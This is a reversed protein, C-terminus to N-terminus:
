QRAHSQTPRALADIGANGSYGKANRASIATATDIPTSTRATSHHRLRLLYRARELGAGGRQSRGCWGAAVRKTAHPTPAESQAPRASTSSIMASARASNPPQQRAPTPVETVAREFTVRREGIGAQTRNGGGVVFRRSEGHKNSRPAVPRPIPRAFKGRLHGQGIDM